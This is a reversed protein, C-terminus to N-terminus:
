TFDKESFVAMYVALRTDQDMESWGEVHPVVYSVPLSALIRLYEQDKQYLMAFIFAKRRDSMKDFDLIDMNEPVIAGGRSLYDYFGRVDHTRPGKSDDVDNDMATKKQDRIKRNSIEEELVKRM